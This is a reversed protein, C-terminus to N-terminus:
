QSKIKNVYEIEGKSILKNELFHNKFDILNANQKLVEEFLKEKQKNLVVQVDQSGYLENLKAKNSEAIITILCKINEFDSNFKQQLTSYDKVVKEINNSVFSMETARNCNLSYFKGTKPPVYYKSHFAKDSSFVWCYFIQNPDKVEQIILSDIGNPYLKGM